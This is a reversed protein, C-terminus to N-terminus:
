KKKFIFSRNTELIRIKRSPHRDSLERRRIRSSRERAHVLRMQFRNERQGNIDVLLRHRTVSSNFVSVRPINNKKGKKKKLDHNRM